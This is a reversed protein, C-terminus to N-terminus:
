DIVWVERIRGDRLWAIWNEYRWLEGSALPVRSMPAGCCQTLTATTGTVAKLVAMATIDDISLVDLTEGTFVKSRALQIPRSDFLGREAENLPSELLDRSLAMPLPWPAAVATRAARPRDCQQSVDDASPELTRADNQACVLARVRTPLADFQGLAKSWFRKALDPTGSYLRALNYNLTPDDSELSQSPRPANASDGETQEREFRVIAALARVQPDNPALAQAAAAASEARLLQESSVRPARPELGLLLHTTALNTQAPAYRPDKAIALEFYRAADLLDERASSPIRWQSRGRAPAIARLNLRSLPTHLDAIGPLWYHYAFEPQMHELAQHLHGYGLNNFVERSPFQLQFERLLALGERYRGFQLLRVGFHFAQISQLRDELRMRLLDTRAAASPYGEADQAGIQDTWYTLFDQTAPTPRVLREVRFGALAAYLFGLDDAKLEKKRQDAATTSVSAPLESAIERAALRERVQHDWFDNDAVHALEHGLVFALRAEALPTDVGANIIDLARQSLVISGDELVFATADQKDNVVILDPWLGGSKDAVTRVGDFIAYVRPLKTPDIRGHTQLYYDTGSRANSHFQEKAQVAPGFLIALAISAAARLTARATRADARRTM